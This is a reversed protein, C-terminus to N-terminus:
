RSRLKVNSPHSHDAEFGEFFGNQLCNLLDKLNCASLLSSLIQTGIVCKFSSTDVTVRVFNDKQIKASFDGLLVKVHYTNQSCM